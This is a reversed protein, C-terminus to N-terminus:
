IAKFTSTARACPYGDSLVICEAFSLTKGVKTAKARIELWKGKQAVGIFDVNLSVTLMGSATDHREACSLGMANDALSSILGGHVFGRANCHADDAQLGISLGGDTKQSFLPEWPDTLPSKRFHPSFGEPHHTPEPM